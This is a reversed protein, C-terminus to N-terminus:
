GATTANVVPHSVRTAPTARVSEAGSDPEILDPRNPLRPGFQQQLAALAEGGLAPAYTRAMRLAIALAQARRSAMAKEEDSLRSNFDEVGDDIARERLEGPLARALAGAAHELALDDRGKHVEFTQAVAIMISVSTPGGGEEWHFDRWAKLYRCVRRLQDTHQALRDQFWRAVAEPDSAKWEGKRTAMAIDDLDDWDQEQFSEQAIADFVISDVRTFGAELAARKEVVLKFKEEPAAYLPIDIHAWSAVQVRICTDKGSILQWRKSRCLDALLSEVLEFYAKAMIHPPGNEEWVHVPLYVGFDWDMEQPPQFSPQICTLYSWSGQTRFRPVVPKDMGLVTTTAAAIRPKLHDRIANKCDNLFAKQETTPVIADHFVPENGTFFLKNLKIMGRNGLLFTPAPAQHALFRCFQADGLCTKARETAHGLLVERAPRDARDLAVAKAGQDTLDDDVHLYRKDTLRHRLMFDNLAEQVSISLGFLRKPMNSPNAGGWDWTGGQRNKRPDVTFKSSMTGVSLVHVDNPGQCFFTQAEHLALLSPANAFLGGDVYQNNDFVHRPFYAPAASTALAVDVARHKHDRKFAENHPTKFLVPKGTSYNIAPVVVPHKCAGLLREGLLEDSGLLKKLPASSYPSRLIGLLSWRKRFIEEGHQVFLDVIKQAPIEMALAIALIGGISTGAILDFHRAIPQGMEAEVDALIKATYLGRFGGGSLSLIQFRAQEEM